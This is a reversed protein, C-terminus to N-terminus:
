AYNQKFLRNMSAYIFMNFYNQLTKMSNM